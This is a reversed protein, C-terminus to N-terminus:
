FAIKGPFSLCASDGDGRRAIDFVAGPANDGVSLVLGHLEVITAAMSLGLGDGPASSHTSPSRYFRRFIADPAIGPGSDSVRVLSYSDAGCRILVRGGCPTFKIANDVLNAVAERLLDGDGQVLVPEPAELIMTLGKAEALPQFLEFADRGVESLDVRGFAGRKVGGELASIRLLATITTMARDLDDLATGVTQRLAEGSSSALGRELRARMAAMPSRLDHAINDGVTKIQGILRMVEDLMRNVARALADIDDGTGGYPLRTELRGAMVKAISIEIDALRRFARRSVVTGAILALLVVPALATVFADRMAAELEDATALSRGLIVLRGDDRRSAVFVASSGGEPAAVVHPSGDDPVVFTRPVNGFSSAGDPEFLGVYDLHRLDQTLRLDLQRRLRDLSEGRAEAVELRLVEKVRALDAVTFRWAVLAFVLTTTVTLAAAFALAVRFATSRLLQSM